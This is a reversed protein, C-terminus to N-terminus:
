ENHFPTETDDHRTVSYQIPTLKKKLEADTPRKWTTARVSAVSQADAPLTASTASIM